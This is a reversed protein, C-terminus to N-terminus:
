TLFVTAVAVAATIQGAHTRSLNPKYLGAEQAALAGPWPPLDLQPFLRTLCPNCLAHPRAPGQVWAKQGLCQPLEARHLRCAPQVIPRTPGHNLLLLKETPRITHLMAPRTM